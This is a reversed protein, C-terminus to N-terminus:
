VAIGGFVAFFRHRSWVGPRRSGEAAGGQWVRRRKPFKESKRSFKEPTYVPPYGDPATLYM